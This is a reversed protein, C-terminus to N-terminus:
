PKGEWSASAPEAAVLGRCWGRTVLAETLDTNLWDIKM